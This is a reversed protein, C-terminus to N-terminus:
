TLLVILIKILRFSKYQPFNLYFWHNANNIEYWSRKGSKLKTSCKM